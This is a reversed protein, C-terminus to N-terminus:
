GINFTDFNQGDLDKALSLNLCEWFKKKDTADAAVGIPTVHRRPVDLRSFCTHSSCLRANENWEMGINLRTSPTFAGSGTITDVLNTIWKEDTKSPDLIFERLWAAKQRVVPDGSAAHVSDAVEQRSPPNGQVAATLEAKEENTLSMWRNRMEESLGQSVIQAAQIYPKFTEILQQRASQVLAASAVDGNADGALPDTLLAALYSDVQACWENDNLIETRWAEQEAVSLDAPEDIPIKLTNIIFARTRPIPDGDMVASWMWANERPNAILRGLRLVSDDDPGLNLDMQFNEALTADTGGNGRILLSPIKTKKDANLVVRSGEIFSFKCLDSFFAASLGGADIGREQRLDDSLYNVGGTPLRVAGSECLKELIKYACRKLTLRHVRATNHELAFGKTWLISDVAQGLRNGWENSIAEKDAGNESITQIKGAENLTIILRQNADAGSQLEIRTAERNSRITYRSGDNLQINESYNHSRGLFKGAVHLATPDSELVQRIGGSTIAVNGNTEITHENTEDTEDIETTDEDTRTTEKGFLRGVFRNWVEKIRDILSSFGKSIRSGLSACVTKASAETTDRSFLRNQATQSVSSPMSIPM